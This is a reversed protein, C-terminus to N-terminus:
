DPAGCRASAIRHPNRAHSAQRKGIRAEREKSNRHELFAQEIISRAKM